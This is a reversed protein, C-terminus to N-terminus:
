LCYGNVHTKGGFAREVRDRYKGYVSRHFHIGDGKVDDRSPGGPKASDILDFVEVMCANGISALIKRAADNVQDKRANVTNNQTPPIAGYVIRARSNERRLTRLLLELRDIVEGPLAQARLDNGGIHVFIFKPRFASVQRSMRHYLDCVRNGGIGTNLVTAHNTGNFWLYGGEEVTLTRWLAVISDGTFVREFEHTEGWHNFNEAIMQNYLAEWGSQDFRARDTSCALGPGYNPCRALVACCVGLVAIHMYKNM